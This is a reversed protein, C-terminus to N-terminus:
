RSMAYDKAVRRFGTISGELIREEVCYSIRFYGPTGFGSGPVVLVNQEQLAQVFELDNNIPTKPYMYFAGQPKVIDYGFSTLEDYLYDRKEQYQKIDVSIGQLSEIATQIVAPANVFGLSRNWFTLGDILQDKHKYNPNVAIYGIREGPLALDKSHSHVAITTEYHPFIFPYTLGDFIIRRYPEDAILFIESQLEKQKNELLSGLDRILSQPYLAGSPNNPSNILVARTKPGILPKLASLIPHFKDDTPAIVPNGQHNEIYYTFEGFFPAFIIVEDGPNLISEFIVNLAGAAGCTMVIENATFPILTERSLLEAVRSRTSVYGANPMYRHMGTVTSTALERMRKTFLAPPEIVPNGLSLDFVNAEGYKAKLEIGIEFMRRIWGGEKIAKTTRKSIPM